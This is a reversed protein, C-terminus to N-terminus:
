EIEPQYSYPFKSACRDVQLDFDPTIDMAMAMIIESRVTKRTWACRAVGSGRKRLRYFMCIKFELQYIRMLFKWWVLCIGTSFGQKWCHLPQWRCIELLNVTDLEVTQLYFHVWYRKGFIVIYYPCKSPSFYRSGTVREMYDLLVLSVHWLIRRGLWGKYAAPFCFGATSSLGPSIHFFGFM